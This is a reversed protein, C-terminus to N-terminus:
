AQREIYNVKINEPSFWEDVFEVVANVDYEKCSFVDLYFDGTDDCFHGAINSTQILQILTFGMKNDEGFHVVIPEGFAVMDIHKVLSKSFAKIYEGDTIKSKDGARCDLSTHFGWSM